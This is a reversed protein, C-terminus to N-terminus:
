VSSVIFVSIPHSYLNYIDWDLSRAEVEEIHIENIHSGALYVYRGAKNM